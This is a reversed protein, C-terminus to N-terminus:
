LDPEPRARVRLKAARGLDALRLSIGVRASDDKEGDEVGVTRKGVGIEADNEDLLIVDYTCKFDRGALNTQRFVVVVEGKADPKTAVAKENPWRIVEVSHVVFGRDSITLPIVQEQKFPVIREFRSNTAGSVGDIGFCFGVEPIPGKFAYEGPGLQEVPIVLFSSKGFRVARIEIQNETTVSRAGIGMFAARALSLRREGDVVDLAFLQAAQQPDTNQDSVLVAFETRDSERFRIPSRDGPVRVYTEGGGLGMARVEIASEGTQRELPKLEGTIPDRWCFNGIYDPERTAGGGGGSSKPGADGAARDLMAAIVSGSVGAKKLAALDSVELAFTVNPAQRIKAIVADDGIGLQSLTIVDKNTFSADAALLTVTIFLGVAARFVHM